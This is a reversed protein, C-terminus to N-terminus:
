GPGPKLIWINSSSRVRLIASFRINLSAFSQTIDDNRRKNPIATDHCGVSNSFLTKHRYVNSTGFSMIVSRFTWVIIQILLQYWLHSLWFYIIKGIEVFILHTTERKIEIRAINQIRSKLSDIFRSYNWRRIRIMMGRGTCIVYQWLCFALCRQPVVLSLRARFKWTYGPGYDSINYSWFPLCKWLGTVQWIQCTFDLQSVRTKLYTLPSSHCWVAPTLCLLLSIPIM